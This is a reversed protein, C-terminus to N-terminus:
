LSFDTSGNDLLASADRILDLAAPLNLEELRKFRICAKGVSVKGLRAQATEAIAQGDRHGSVYFSIGQARSSIAVIPCDGERGTPYRYHYPGYGIMTGSYALYPKLKPVAKRIAAHLAELEARRPANLAALYEDPTTPKAARPM